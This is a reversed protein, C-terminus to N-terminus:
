IMKWDPFRIQTQIKQRRPRSMKGHFARYSRFLKSLTPLILAKFLDRSPSCSYAIFLPPNWRLFELHGQRSRSSAMCPLVCPALLYVKKCGVVKTQKFCNKTFGIKQSIEIDRSKRVSRIGYRHLSTESGLNM